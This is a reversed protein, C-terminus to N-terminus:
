INGHLFRIVVMVLMGTGLGIFLLIATPTSWHKTVKHVLEIFSVKNQPPLFVKTSHTDEPRDGSPADNGSELSKNQSTVGNDYEKDSEVLITPIDDQTSTLEGDSMLPDDAEDEVYATYTLRLLVEGVIRRRFPGWVGRLRVAKDVPITDKLSM